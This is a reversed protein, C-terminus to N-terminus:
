RGLADLADSSIDLYTLAESRTVVDRDVARVFLDVTRGGLQDEQIEERVRGKGGGGSPKVDGTPPLDRYLDWGALGVEILRIATASLSVHFRNAIWRVIGVDNVRTVRRLKERLLDEIAGNPILVAAAFRECWREAPDWAGSVRAPPPATCASSTDTVLHGLEHMMSFIRAQENWATNVAVVPADSHAISFGRCNDRGLQFLFVNVGLDEIAARWEDFAVSASRWKRQVKLDIGLAERVEAGVAEPDEGLSGSPLAPRRDGLERSIWALM